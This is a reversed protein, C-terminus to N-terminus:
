EKVLEKHTFLITFGLLLIAPACMILLTNGMGGFADLGYTAVLILIVSVAVRVAFQVLFLKCFGIMMGSVLNLTILYVSVAWAVIQIAVNSTLVHKEPELGTQLTLSTGAAMIAVSSHLIYHFYGCLRMKSPNKAMLTGFPITFYLWWLVFLIVINGTAIKIGEVSILGTHGTTEIVGRSLSLFSEGIVIITFAGYREGLHIPNRAPVPTWVESLFPFYFEFFLLIVFFSATWEFSSPLYFASIYWLAQVLTTLFAMRLNYIRNAPDEVAAQFGDVDDM